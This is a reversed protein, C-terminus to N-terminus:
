FGISTLYASVLTNILAYGNTKPHVGDANIYTDISPTALMAAYLDYYRTGKALAAAATAAVFSDFRVRNPVSGGNIGAYFTFGADLVYSMSLLVIRDATWGKTIAADIITSYDAIFNVDTYNAANTGADNAGFLFFLGKCDATKNPILSVRDVMNLAGFPNVPVRKELTSGGVARNLERWGKSLSLLAPWRDTLPVTAGTGFSTSDGFFAANDQVSLKPDSAKVVTNFATALPPNGFTSM